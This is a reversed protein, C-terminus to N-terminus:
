RRAVVAAALVVVALVGSGLNLAGYGLTAVVVGALAGGGAAFLGMVLDSAGQVGPREAFPVADVLLASAAILCCSWGLGLLFLGVMLGTSHGEPASGALAVAALLVGGGVALMVARGVKDTLWGVLPSFAFMGLVHVSIVFGIVNLGAGGHDMHLPTMVMVSVMVAHAVGIAAMAAAARPRVSVVSWVHRLSVHGTTAEGRAAALERSLLLPDPRLRLWIVTTSLAVAAVSFVFPGTLEPIHLRRAVAAGPGTLNPGLVAGLTTAWVVVALARGRHRPEALDTAAYRAQSNAATAWGVALTGLLLLAFSEVVGALICLVAGTGGVGYGAVLGVRRGHASMLRALVFAGVAAGLVQTTQALGALTASGLIDEALLTAVAIGSTVGMGGLAQGIVLTGLTRRQVVRQDAVVTTM